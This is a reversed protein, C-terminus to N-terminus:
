RRSRAMSSIGCDAAPRVMMVVSGFNTGSCATVTLISPLALKATRIISQTPYITGLANPYTSFSIGRMTIVGHYSSGIGNLMAASIPVLFTMVSCEVMPKTTVVSPLM